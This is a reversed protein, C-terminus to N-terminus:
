LADNGKIALFDSIFPNNTAQRVSIGFNEAVCICNVPRKQQLAWRSVNMYLRKEQTGHLEEPLQYIHHNSQRPIVTVKM